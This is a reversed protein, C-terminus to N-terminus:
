ACNHLSKLSIKGEDKLLLYRIYLGKGKLMTIFLEEHALVRQADSVYDDSTKSIVAAILRWSSQIDLIVTRDIMDMNVKM